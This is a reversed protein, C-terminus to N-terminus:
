VITTNSDIYIRDEGVDYRFSAGGFSLWKIVKGVAKTFWDGAILMEANEGKVVRYIEMRYEVKFNKDGEYAGADYSAITSVNKTETNTKTNMTTVRCGITCMIRM